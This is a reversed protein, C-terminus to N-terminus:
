SYLFIFFCPLCSVWFFFSYLTHAPNFRAIAFALSNLLGCILRETLSLALFNRAFSNLNDAFKFRKWSSETLYNIM